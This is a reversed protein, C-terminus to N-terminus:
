NQTPLRLQATKKGGYMLVNGVHTGARLSAGHSESRFEAKEPERLARMTEDGVLSIKQDLGLTFIHRMEDQLSRHEYEALIRLDRATEANHRLQTPLGLRTTKKEGHM